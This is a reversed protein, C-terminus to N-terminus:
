TTSMLQTIYQKCTIFQHRKFSTMFNLLKKHTKNLNSYHRFQYFLPAKSVRPQEPDIEWPHLYFLYTDQKRLIQKVGLKFLFFPTLRFYGGGGWPLILNQTTSKLNKTKFTSKQISFVLNSIPLEFLTKLKPDRTNSIQYAIGQKLDANPNIKGYRDHLGFSNYSSDYLYGCDQITKLIDENISFSPARYGYIEIGLIDELEKKSDTLDKRLEDYLCQTCLNHDYGHSAVEHGRSHIERILNPLRQAIWGLVFFTAKPHQINSGIKISDFLDLLHHTNEEVRLQRSSWSSFPIYQKFNEVQFWDEVDITILITSNGKKNIKVM